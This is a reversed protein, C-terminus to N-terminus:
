TINKYDAKRALYIGIFVAILAVVIKSTIM